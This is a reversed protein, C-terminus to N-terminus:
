WRDARRGCFHGFADSSCHRGTRELDASRTTSEARYIFGSDGKIGPQRDARADPDYAFEIRDPSAPRPSQRRLSRIDTPWRIFGGSVLCRWLCDFGDEPLVPDRGWVSQAQYRALAAAMVGRDLAPFFSSITETIEPASRSYIWQQTRQIARVMRLLPEADGVLRDRTTVFATYTTRGRTSAAYWLHGRGSALAEEVVPEFFQAAEIRGESLANLNEAMSRDAIRDLRAPDIGAQRLDEQLCLWPTPVESVTAIRM